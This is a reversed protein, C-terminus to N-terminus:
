RQVDRVVATGTAFATEIGAPILFSNKVLEQEYASKQALTFLTPQLFHIFRGGAHRVESSAALLNSTYERRLADALLAIDSDSKLHPPIKRPDMPNLFFRVFVSHKRLKRHVYTAFRLRLSLHKVSEKTEVVRNQTDRYYLMTTIDNPGDYFIVIDGASIPRLSKLRALEERSAAGAVGLNEVRYRTGFRNSLEAQLLSPITFADPVESAYVSSGGLLYVTKAFTEPQGATCRRNNQVNYYKGRVDGPLIFGKDKQTHWGNPQRFQERIFAESFFDAKAYPAPRQSRFERQSAPPFHSLAVYLRAGGEIALVLLPIPVVTLLLRQMWPAPSQM